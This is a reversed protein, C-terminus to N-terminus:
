VNVAGGNRISWEICLKSEKRRAKAVQPDIDRARFLQSWPKTASVGDTHAKLLHQLTRAAGGDGELLRNAQEEGFNNLEIEIGLTQNGNFQSQKWEISKPSPRPKTVSNDSVLSNLFTKLAVLFAAGPIVPLWWNNFDKQLTSPIKLKELAACLYSPMIPRNNGAYRSPYGLDHDAVFLVKLSNGDYQPLSSRKDFLWERTNIVHRQAEHDFCDHAFQKKAPQTARCSGDWEHEDTNRWCNDYLTLLSKIEADGGTGTDYFPSKQWDDWQKVLSEMYEGMDAVNKLSDVGAVADSSLVKFNPRGTAATRLAVQIEYGTGYTTAVVVMLPAASTTQAMEVGLVVGEVQAASVNSLATYTTSLTDRFAKVEPSPTLLCCDLIVIAPGKITTVRKMAEDYAAIQQAATRADNYPSILGEFEHVDCWDPSTRTQWEKLKDHAKENDDIVVLAIRCM